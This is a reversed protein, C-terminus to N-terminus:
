MQFLFFKLVKPVNVGFYNEMIDVLFALYSATISTNYKEELIKTIKDSDIEKMSDNQKFFTEIIDSLEKSLIYAKKMERKLSICSHNSNTENFFQQVIIKEIKIKRKNLVNKKDHLINSKGIVRYDKYLNKNNKYMEQSEVSVNIDFLDSYIFRIFEILPNKIEKNDNLILLNQGLVCAHIIYSLTDPDLSNKILKVNPMNSIDGLDEEVDEMEIDPIMVQFSFSIKVYSNKKVDFTEYELIDFKIDRGIHESLTKEMLGVILYFYYIYDDTLELMDSNVFTISAKKNKKDLSIESVAISDHILNFHPLWDRISELIMEDSQYILKKFFQKDKESFRIKMNKAMNRGFEQFLPGKDPFATKLNLLLGKLFSIILDKNLINEEQSFYLTYMGIKKKYIRQESELVELYKYVTNRSFSIENAIDTVTLGYGNNLICQYIRQKYDVKRPM